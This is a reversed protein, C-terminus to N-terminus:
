FKVEVIFRVMGNDIFYNVDHRIIQKIFPKLPALCGINSLNLFVSQDKAGRVVLQELFRQLLHGDPDCLMDREIENEPEKNMLPINFTIIKFDIDELNDLLDSKVIDVNLNNNKANLIAADIAKQCIDTAMYRGSPGFHKALSLIVGGSGTGIELISPPTGPNQAKLANALFYTSSNQAFPTYVGHPAVLDLGDFGHMYATDHRAILKDSVKFLKDREFSIFQGLELINLIDEHDRQRALPSAM